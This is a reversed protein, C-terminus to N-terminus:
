VGNLPGDGDRVGTARLGPAQPTAAYYDEPSVHVAGGYHDVMWIREIDLTMFRFQHTGGPKWKKMEPHRSFLAHKAFGHESQTINRMNGMFVLRACTPDEPDLLCTGTDEQTMTLSCRSDVVLDQVSADLPSVYFYLHGSANNVPGDSYSVVNGFPFPMSHGFTSLVGYTTNHALWRAIGAAGNASDRTGPAVLRAQTMPSGHSVALMGVVMLLVPM